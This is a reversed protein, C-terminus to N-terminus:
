ANEFGSDTGRGALWIKRRQSAASPSIAFSRAVESVTAGAEYSANVARIGADSLRGDARKLTGPTQNETFLDLWLAEAEDALQQATTAMTAARKSLALVRTRLAMMDDANNPM